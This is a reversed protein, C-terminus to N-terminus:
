IYRSRFCIFEKTKYIFKKMWWIEWQFFLALLAILAMFGAIVRESSSSNSMCNTNSLTFGSACSSCNSASSCNGCSSPCTQCYGIGGYVNSSSMNIYNGLNNCSACGEGQTANYTMIGSNNWWGCNLGTMNWNYCMANMPGMSAWTYNGTCMQCSSYNSQCTGCNLVNCNDCYTYNTMTTGNM